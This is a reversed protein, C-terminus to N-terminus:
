LQMLKQALVKHLGNINKYESCTIIPFQIKALHMLSTMTQGPGLDIILDYNYEKILECLKNWHLTSYLEQDLLAELEVINTSKSCNIPSYLPYHIKEFNMTSLFIKLEEKQSLYFPTHSPLSVQLFQSQTVQNKPFAARLQELHDKHGGIVLHNQVNIIAIACQYQTCLASITEYEFPGSISLLDYKQKALPTIMLQTRYALVEKIAEPSAKASALFACVGGLSYGACDLQFNSILPEISHFLTLQYMGILLQTYKMNNFPLQSQWLDLDILQSFNTVHHVADANDRFLTFPNPEKYGAGAFLCLIKM